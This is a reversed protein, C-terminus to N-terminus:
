RKDDVATVSYGPGLRTIEQEIYAGDTSAFLKWEADASYSSSVFKVGKVKLAERNIALLLEAKDELPIKFPDKILPTQWVDVNAAVPALTVPRKLLKSNAKAIEVAARAVREVEAITVTPTAAFGWAGGAIVRVGVGYEDSFSVREVRDERTAVSERRHRVVRVDAYSAGAKTAAALGRKVLDDLKPDTLLGRAAVLRPTALAALSSGVLFSRRSLKMAASVIM